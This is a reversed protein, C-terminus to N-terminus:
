DEIFTVIVVGAEGGSAQVAFRASEIRYRREPGDPESEIQGGAEFIAQEIVRVRSASESANVHSLADRILSLALEEDASLVGTAVFQDSESM